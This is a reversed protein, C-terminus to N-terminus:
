PPPRYGDSRTGFLVERPDRELGHSVRNLSATLHNAEILLQDLRAIDTTTLQQLGPRSSQVVGDLDTALRTAKSFTTDASAILRDAKGSARELNAVLVNLRVSTAALNHMTLGADAILNDIDKDRNAITGTTDRINALTDAIAARNKDDLVAEVRNAITLVHTLVEPVNAFVQQLSSPESAITPYQEGPGAKLLPSAPTGGSIEVYSAGILGETELSAVADAHIEFTDRVQLVLTVLEPNAPDLDIRAVRGVDIGNLRVPAGVSLGSVSGSVHTQYYNFETKFQVRAIWLSALLIGALVVLVFAGVAVYNGRTEMVSPGHRARWCFIRPGM